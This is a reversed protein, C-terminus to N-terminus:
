YLLEIVSSNIAGFGIIIVRGEKTRGIATINMAESQPNYKKQSFTTWADNTLV